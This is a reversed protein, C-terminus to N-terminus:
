MPNAEEVTSLHEKADLLILWCGKWITQNIPAATALSTIGVFKCTVPETMAWTRRQSVVDLVSRAEGCRKHTTGSTLITLDIMNTM